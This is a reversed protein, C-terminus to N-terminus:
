IAVSAFEYVCAFDTRTEFASPRRAVRHVCHWLGVIHWSSFRRPELLVASLLDCFPHLFQGM